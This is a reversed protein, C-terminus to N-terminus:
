LLRTATRATYVQTMGAKIGLIGGRGTTLAVLERAATRLVLSAASDCRRAQAEPKQEM